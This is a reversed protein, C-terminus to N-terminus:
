VDMKKKKKKRWKKIETSSHALISLDDFLRVLSFFFLFFRLAAGPGRVFKLGDCAPFSGL